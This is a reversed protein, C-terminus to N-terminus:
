AAELQRQFTLADLYTDKRAVLGDRVEIVDICEVDVKAGEAGRDEGEVQLPQAVTGTMTSELVWYDEGTRLSRTAFNIDPLQALYAAFAERVAEKGEAPPSGGAHAHFVCDDAHLALIADLDQSNWAEGYRAALEEITTAETTQTTM